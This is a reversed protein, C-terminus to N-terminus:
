WHTTFAMGSPGRDVYWRTDRVGDERGALMQEAGFARICTVPLSRIWDSTASLAIRAESTVHVEIRLAPRTSFAADHVAAAAAPISALLVACFTATRM